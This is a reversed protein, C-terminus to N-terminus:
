SFLLSPIGNARSTAVMEPWADTRAILLARPRHYDIFEQLSSQTDWPVPAAFDVGEFKKIANAMTPSFYTVLIRATPERKKIERIVPKAYEFEGSACHFWFPNSQKPGALWPQGQRQQLGEKIKPLIPAALLFAGRLLPWGFFRYIFFFLQNM